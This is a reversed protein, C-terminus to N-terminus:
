QGAAPGHGTHAASLPASQSDPSGAKQPHAEPRSWAKLLEQVEKILHSAVVGVLTIAAGQARNDHTSWLLWSVLLLLVASAFLVLSAGFKQLGGLKDESMRVEESM